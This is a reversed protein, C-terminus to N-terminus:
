RSSRRGLPPGVMGGDAESQASCVVEMRRLGVGARHMGPLVPSQSEYSESVDQDRRTANRGGPSQGWGGEGRSGSAVTCIRRYHLGRKPAKANIPHTYKEAFGGGTRRNSGAKVCCVMLPGVLPASWLDVSIFMDDDSTIKLWSASTISYAPSYTFCVSASRQHHFCHPLNTQSLCTMALCTTRLRGVTLSVILKFCM